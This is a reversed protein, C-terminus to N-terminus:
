LELPIGVVFKLLMEHLGEWDVGTIGALLDGFSESSTKGCFIRRDRVMGDGTM